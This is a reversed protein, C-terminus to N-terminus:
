FSKVSCEFISIKEIQKICCFEELVEESVSWEFVNNANLQGNKSDPVRPM